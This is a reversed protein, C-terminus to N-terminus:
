YFIFYYPMSWMDDLLNWLTSSLPMNYSYTLTLTVRGSRFYQFFCDNNSVRIWVNYRAYISFNRGNDCGFLLYDSYYSNDSDSNRSPIILDFYKFILFARRKASLQIIKNQVFFYGLTWKANNEDVIILWDLM